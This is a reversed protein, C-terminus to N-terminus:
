KTTGPYPNDLAAEHWNPNEGDIFLGPIPHSKLNENVKMEGKRITTGEKALRDADTNLERKVHVM